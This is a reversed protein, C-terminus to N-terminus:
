QFIGTDNIEKEIKNIENQKEDIEKQLIKIKKFKLALDYINREKYPKIIECYATNEPCGCCGPINCKDCPNDPLEISLLRRDEQDFVYQKIIKM